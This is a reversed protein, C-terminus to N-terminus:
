LVGDRYKYFFFFFFFFVKNLLKWFWEFECNWQPLPLFTPFWTNLNHEGLGSYIALTGMVRWVWVFLRCNSNLSISAYLFSTRTDNNNAREMPDSVIINALPSLWPKHWIVLSPRLAQWGDTLPWFGTGGEAEHQEARELASKWHRQM